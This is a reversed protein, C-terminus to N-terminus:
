KKNTAALKAQKRKKHNAIRDIAIVFAAGFVFFLSAYMIIPQSTAEMITDRAPGYMAGFMLGTLFALTNSRFKKLLWSLLKSFSLLGIIGGVGFAIAYTWKEALNRIVDLMFYYRGMLLLLYSGSIGPLIMACISVAGSIIVLLYNGSQAPDPKITSIIFGIWVGLILFLVANINKKGIQRYMILTSAFILGVFFAYLQAPYTDKLFLIISSFLILTGWIALILPVFLAYDIRKFIQKFSGKHRGILKLFFEKLFVGIDKLGEIFREYVGTIFLITGGSVGPVIDCMGVLIGRLFM